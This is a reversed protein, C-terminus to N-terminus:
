RDFIVSVSAIAEAKPIGGEPRAVVGDHHSADDWILRSMFDAAADANGSFEPRMRHVIQSNHGSGGAEGREHLVITVWDALLASPNNQFFELVRARVRVLPEPWDLNVTHGELSDFGM